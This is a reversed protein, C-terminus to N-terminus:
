VKFRTERIRLANVKGRFKDEKAQCYQKHKAIERAYLMYYGPTRDPWDKLRRTRFLAQLSLQKSDLAVTNLTERLNPVDVATGASGLTSVVIDPTLCSKEYDDGGVYRDINLEPHCAMLKDCVLTCMAVTACFVFMKQGDERDSIFVDEVICAIMELYAGLMFKHKMISEEFKVHSYMKAFGTCRVLDPRTLSYFLSIVDVYADFEFEPPRTEHPWMIKYRENMFRQDAELTGSLSITRPVHSYLDLRFNRHFDLHVEDVLRLGIGLKEYFEQPHLSYGGFDPIMQEQYADLYNAFTANSIIIVKPMRKGDLAMQILGRLEDGGKVTMVEKADIKLAAKVDGAWKAVFKAPIIIVTRLRLQNMAQFSCFTKGRGPQFMCVKSPAFGPVIPGALYAIQEPQDDKPPRTDLLPMDVEETEYLAHEVIKLNEKKVGYYNLFSVLTDLQNRHFRFEDRTRTPEAFIKNLETEYRGPGVRTLKTNANRRCFEILLKKVDHTHRTVTVNHSYVDLVAATAPSVSEM